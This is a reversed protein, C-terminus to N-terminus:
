KKKLKIPKLPDQVLVVNLKDLFMGKKNEEKLITADSQTIIIDTKYIGRGAVNVATIILPNSGARKNSMGDKLSEAYSVIGKEIVTDYDTNAGAWVIDGNDLRIKPSMSRDLSFGSADFIVGTYAENPNSAVAPKYKVPEKLWAELNEIPKNVTVPFYSASAIVTPNANSSAESAYSDYIKKEDKVAQALLISGPNNAGYMYSVCKVVVIQDGQYDKTAEDELAVNKVFGSIEQKIVVDSMMDKGTASYDIRTGEILMLLNSIAEMKAYDVAKLYAIARNGEVDAKAIPGRGIAVYKGNTWDIKSGSKGDIVEISQAFIMSACLLLLLLVVFFKTSKM